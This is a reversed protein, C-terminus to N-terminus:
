RDVRWEGKREAETMGVNNFVCARAGLMKPALEVATYRKGIVSVVAKAGNTLESMAQTLTVKNQIESLKRDEEALAKEYYEAKNEEIFELLEEFEM